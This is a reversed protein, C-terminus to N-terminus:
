QAQGNKRVVFALLLGVFILATAAYLHMPLQWSGDGLLSTATNSCPSRFSYFCSLVDGVPVGSQIVAVSPVLFNFVTFYLYLIGITLFVNRWTEKDFFNSSKNSM